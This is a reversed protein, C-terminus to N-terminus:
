FGFSKLNPLSPLSYTPLSPLSYTSIRPMSYSPLSPASYVPMSFVPQKPVYVKNFNENTYYQGGRPGVNISHGAGYNLAGVSYDKAVSGVSGTYPNINGKTSWNDLNTSNASSRYHPQVYTGNSRFYGNVYTQGFVTTATAFAIIALLILTKM